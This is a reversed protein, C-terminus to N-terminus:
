SRRERDNRCDVLFTRRRIPPITLRKRETLKRMTAVYFGDGLRVRLAELSTPRVKQLSCAYESLMIGIPPVITRWIGLFKDFESHVSERLVYYAIRYSVKAM